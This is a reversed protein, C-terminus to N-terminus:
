SLISPRLSDPDPRKVPGPSRKKSRGDLLLIHDPLTIAASASWGITAQPDVGMCGRYSRPCTVEGRQM